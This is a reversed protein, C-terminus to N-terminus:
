VGPVRGDGWLDFLDLEVRNCRREAAQRRLDGAKVPLIEGQRELPSEVSYIDVATRRRDVVGRKSGM